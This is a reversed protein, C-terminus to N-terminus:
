YVFRRIDYLAIPSRVGAQRLGFRIAAAQAMLERGDLVGLDSSAAEYAAGPHVILPSLYVRDGAGRALRGVAAVTERVHVSALRRGGAGVLVITGLAIGAERLAGALGIAGEVEMPKGLRALVEASGSELGLSVGDVGLARLAALEPASKSASFADIFAAFRHLAAPAGAARLDEHLLELLPTLKSQAVVLANAQGLFLGTRLPLARGALDLVGRLHARLEGATKLRFTADRYLHCFTCRNWSCGSTLQVVLARNQDPPLIPIPDYTRHFREEAQRYRDRDWATARRLPDALQPSAGPPLLGAAEAAAAHVRDLIRESEAAGSLEIDLDRFGDGRRIRVRRLRGDLGRQYSDGDLWARHLRGDLDFHIADGGAADARQVLLSLLHPKRALVLGPRLVLPERYARGLETQM